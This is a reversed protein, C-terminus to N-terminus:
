RIMKSNQIYPNIENIERLDEEADNHRLNREKEKSKDKKRANENSFKSNSDHMIINEDRNEIQLINGPKGDRREGAREGDIEREDEGEDMDEGYEDIPDLLRELLDGKSKKKKM